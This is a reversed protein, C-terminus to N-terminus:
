DDPFERNIVAMTLRSICALKGEENEIRIEWIQTSEGLHLPRATAYVFGTRVPRVHNANIEMGLCLKKQPDVVLNAATSGVTEALALSAGGHLYGAPQLTRTDVPLRAKLYDPGIETFEIGIHDIMTDASFNQIREPTTKIFWISESSSPM